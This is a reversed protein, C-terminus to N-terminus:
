FPPVDESEIVLPIMWGDDGYRTEGTDIRHAFARTKVAVVGGPPAATLEAASQQSDFIWAGSALRVADAPLGANLWDDGLRYARRGAIEGDGVCRVLRLSGPADSGLLGHATLSSIAEESCLFGDTDCYYVSRHPCSALLHRMLVRGYSTVYSSIAPFAGNALEDTILEQVYGAVSRMSVIKHPDCRVEPWSDYATDSFQDPRDRWFRRRASFRGYLSMGMLKCFAERAPEQSARYQERLGLWASSYSKFIRGLSYVCVESCEVLHGSDLAHALEPGALTTWYDGYAYRTGAKTTVPYLYEPTNLHVTAVAGYARMINRLDRVGMEWDLYTHRYVLRRPFVNDRMIAPYMSRVDVQYVPGTVRARGRVPTFPVTDWPAIIEGRIRAEVIGGYYSAKELQLAQVNDHTVIDLSMHKHRYNNWALGAATSKWVGGDLERWWALMQLMTREIVDCRWHATSPNKDDEVRADLGEATWGAFETALASLGCDLYNRTDLYRIRGGGHLMEVIFPRDEICMYGPKIREGKSPHAFEQKGKDGCWRLWQRDALIEEWLQLYTMTHLADYSYVWTPRRDSAHQYILRWFQEATNFLESHRRSVIGKDLRLTTVCGRSLRRVRADGPSGGGSEDTEVAVFALSTPTRCSHNSKIRHCGNPM